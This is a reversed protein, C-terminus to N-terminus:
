KAAPEEEEAPEDEDAAAALAVAAVGGGFPWRVRLVRERDSDRHAQESRGKLLDDITLVGFFKGSGDVVPYSTLKSEAMTAAATRLTTGPGISAPSKIADDVLPKSLDEMRASRMMQSRTLVGKLDGAEDVLPFIRQWHSWAEVGREEMQKLWDAADKRTADAKLAFVSTHMAQRVLMTELPDAGFERSLHLGRASM